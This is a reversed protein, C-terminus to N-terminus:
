SSIDSTCYRCKTANVPIKSRCFPCEKETPVAEEKKKAREAMANLFKVICFIVLAM